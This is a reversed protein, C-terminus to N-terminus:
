RSNNTREHRTNRHLMRIRRSTPADEDIIVEVLYQKPEMRAFAGADAKMLIVSLEFVIGSCIDVLLYSRQLLELLPNSRKVRGSQRGGIGRIM